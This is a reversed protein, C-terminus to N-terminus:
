NRVGVIIASGTAGFFHKWYALPVPLLCGPLVPARAAIKLMTFRDLRSPRCREALRVVGRERLDAGTEEIM